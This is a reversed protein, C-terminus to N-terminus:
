IEGIGRIFGSPYSSTLWDSSRAGHWGVCSLIGIVYDWIIYNL